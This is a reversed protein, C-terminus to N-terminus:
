QDNELKVQAFQAATNLAKVWRDCDAEGAKTGAFGLFFSQRGDGLLHPGPCALEELGGGGGGGTKHADILPLAGALEVRLALPLKDRFALVPNTPLVTARAGALRAREVVEGTKGDALEAKFELQGAECRGYYKTFRRIEVATPGCGKRRVLDLQVWGKAKGAKAVAGFRGQPRPLAVDSM